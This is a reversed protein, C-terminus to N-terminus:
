KATMIQRGFWSVSSRSAMLSGSWNSSIQLAMGPSFGQTFGDFDVGVVEETVDSAPADLGLERLALPALLAMTQPFPAFERVAERRAFAASAGTFLELLQAGLM